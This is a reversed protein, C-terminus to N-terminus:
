PKKQQKETEEVAQRFEAVARVEPAKLADKQNIRWAIPQTHLHERSGSSTPSSGSYGRYVTFEDQRPPAVETQQEPQTDQPNTQQPANPSRGQQGGIRIHNDAQQVTVPRDNTPLNGITREAIKGTGHRIVIILDAQGPDQVPSLRGWRMLAKEVEDQATKNALPDTLSTGADPDILVCVTHAKLVYDPVKAKKAFAVSLAASLVILLFLARLRVTMVDEMRDLHVRSM